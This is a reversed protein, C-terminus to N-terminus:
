RTRTGHASIAIAKSINSIAKEVMPDDSRPHKSRQLYYATALISYYTKRQRNDRSGKLFACYRQIGSVSDSLVAQECPSSAASAHQCALCLLVVIPLIKM